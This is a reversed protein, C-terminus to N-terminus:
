FRPQPKGRILFGIGLWIFGVVIGITTGVLAGLIDLDDSPPLLPFGVLAFILVGFNIILGISAFIIIITGLVSRFSMKGESDIQAIFVIM